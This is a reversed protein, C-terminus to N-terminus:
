LSTPSSVVPIGISCDGQLALRRSTCTAGSSSINPLHSSKRELPRDSSSVSYLKENYDDTRWVNKAYDYGDIRLTYEILGVYKNNDSDLSLYM